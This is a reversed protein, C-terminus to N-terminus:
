LIIKICSLIQVLGRNSKKRVHKWVWMDIIKFSRIGWIEFVGVGKHFVCVKKM